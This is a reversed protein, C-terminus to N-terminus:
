EIVKYNANLGEQIYRDPLPPLDLHRYYDHNM